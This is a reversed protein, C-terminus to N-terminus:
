PKKVRDIARPRSLMDRYKADDTEYTGKIVESLYDFQDNGWFLKSDYIISPIGFVGKSIAEDTSQKLAEKVDSGAMNKELESPDLGVDRAVSLVVEADGIDQGEGWAAHFLATILKRQHGGSVMELSARLAALPNFPHYKPFSLPLNNATAYYLCYEFVWERKPPIEAPGLQGWHDLLKGFVVPKVVLDVDHSACFGEIKNWSFYAYPSLYDFYFELTKM